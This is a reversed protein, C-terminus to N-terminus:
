RPSVPIAIENHRQTAPTDAPDYSWAVPAGAPRWSSGELAAALEGSQAAIAEASAAGTFALVAMTEAPVPVLAVAPDTPAPATALTAEPPLFLRTRWHQPGDESQALPPIPPITAHAANGGHFYAALRAYGATLADDANGDEATEAAIRPGYQRIQVAGIRAAVTYAPQEPPKAVHAASCGLLALAAALPAFKGHM